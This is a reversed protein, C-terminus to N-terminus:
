QTLRLIESPHAILHNAGSDRLEKEDRFGWLAGVATMGSNVATQMDIRTDGIFLCQAPPVKLQQAIELAAAPDPKRPVGEKQGAIIAWPVNSFYHAIVQRTAADPKNSLVALPVRRAALGTLLGPIGPYPRTADFAHAAYREKYLKLCQDRLDQRDAPLIRQMLVDAGEGVFYRYSEIPHAPMQLQALSWNASDAIDQLTDLLTGDLDFIVPRTPM